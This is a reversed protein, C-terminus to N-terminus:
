FYTGHGTFLKIDIPASDLGNLYKKEASKQFLSM